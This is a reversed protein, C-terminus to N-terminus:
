KEHCKTIQKDNMLKSTAKNERPYNLLYEVNITDFHELETIQVQSRQVCGDDSLQDLKESIVNDM